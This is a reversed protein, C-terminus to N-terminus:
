FEVRLSGIVTLPAGPEIAVRGFNNAIFYDEDFLNQVNVALRWNDREYFVAADTRLYSPLDFSDEFDGAREAVYFFGLGFGLGQLNGSQIQYTTWFSAANQPVNAVRSGAPLGFYEETYEADTHTYSAIVNWGPLIRGVIDLEIGRSRQEAIPISFDPNDPDTTALNTKTITYAALNAILNGDFLEGRIGIEYQTGREPELFSGDAGTGFNPQFSRAFNAYIALPEIPQYLLGVTPSFAEVDQGSTTDALRNRSEQEV